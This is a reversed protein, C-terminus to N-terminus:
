GDGYQRRLRLKQLQREILLDALAGPLTAPPHEAFARKVKAEAVDVRYLISMLLGPNRDLLTSIHAVLFRRVDDLTLTAAPAPLAAEGPLAAALAALADPLLPADDNPM